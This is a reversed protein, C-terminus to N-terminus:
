HKLKPYPLLCSTKAVKSAKGQPKKSLNYRLGLLRYLERVDDRTLSSWHGNRLWSPLIVPGYRVRKLRSVICGMAEFLRRVERNKGELLVVHYWVNNDSGNYYRIDSFKLVDGESEVGKMLTKLESEELKRDVRVAYERDLGSSPHMLKNALKGDNTLLILGSTQIDLRGVSVWRANRINPLEEYITARGEPDRRTCVTGSAKNMILVESSPTQNTRIRKGDVEIADEVSVRQGLHANEGNVLIRGATIWTEIQRRSGLGLTSLVKQLKEGESTDL